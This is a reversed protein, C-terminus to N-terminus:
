SVSKENNKLFIPWERGRKNMKTKENCNITFLYVFTWYLNKRQSSKFQLGSTDSAVARGVSSFDSEQNKLIKWWQVWFIWEQTKWRIRKVNSSWPFTQRLVKLPTKFSGFIQFSRLKNLVLKSVKTLFRKVMDLWISYCVIVNVLNTM